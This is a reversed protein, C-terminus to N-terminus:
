LDVDCVRWFLSLVLLAVFVTNFFTMRIVAPNRFLYSMNRKFLEVFQKWSGVSRDASIMSFKAQFGKYKQEYTPM